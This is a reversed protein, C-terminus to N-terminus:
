LSIPWTFRGVFLLTLEREREEEAEEKYEEEDGHRTETDRTAARRVQESRLSPSMLDAWSGFEPTPPGEFADLIAVTFFNILSVQSPILNFNKESTGFISVSDGFWRVSFDLLLFGDIRSYFIITILSNPIDQEDSISLKQM